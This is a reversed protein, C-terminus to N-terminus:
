CGHEGRHLELMKRVNDVHLRAQETAQYQEAFKHYGDGNCEKLLKVNASFVVVADNYETMLKERHLCTPMPSAGEKDFCFSANHQRAKLIPWEYYCPHDTKM